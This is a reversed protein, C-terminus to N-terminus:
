LQESPDEQRDVNGTPDTVSIDWACCVRNRPCCLSHNKDSKHEHRENLKTTHIKMRVLSTVKNDTKVNIHKNYQLNSSLKTLNHRIVPKHHRRRHHHHHEAEVISTTSGGVHHNVGLLWPNETTVIHSQVASSSSTM